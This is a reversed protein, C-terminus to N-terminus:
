DATLAFHAAGPRVLGLHRHLPQVEDLLIRGVLDPLRHRCKHLPHAASGKREAPGSLPPPANRAAVPVSAMDFSSIAPSASIPNPSPRATNVSALGAISNMPPTAQVPM